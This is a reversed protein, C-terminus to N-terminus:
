LDSEFPVYRIPTLASKKVGHLSGGHLSFCTDDTIGQLHPQGITAILISLIRWVRRAAAIVQLLSFYQVVRLIPVVRVMCKIATFSGDSITPLIVLLLILRILGPSIILFRKATIRLARLPTRRLCITASPRPTMFPRLWLITM